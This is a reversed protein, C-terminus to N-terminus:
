RLEDFTHSCISHQLVHATRPRQLFWCRVLGSLSSFLTLFFYPVPVLPEKLQKRVKTLVPRLPKVEVSLSFCYPVQKRISTASSGRHKTTCKSGGSFSNRDLTPSHMPPVLTIPHSSDTQKCRVERGREGHHKATRSSVLHLLRQWPLCSWRLARSLTLHHDHREERDFLHQNARRRRNLLEKRARADAVAPEIFNRLQVWAGNSQVMM